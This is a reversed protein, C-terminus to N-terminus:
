FGWTLGLKFESLETDTSVTGYFTSFLRHSYMLTYLSRDDSSGVKSLISIQHKHLNSTTETRSSTKDTKSENTRDTVRTYDRTRTIETTGDPRKIEKEHIVGVEKTTEVEKTVTVVKITEKVEVKAPRSYIGAVFTCVLVLTYVAYKKLTQVM